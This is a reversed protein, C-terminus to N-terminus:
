IGSRSSPKTSKSHLTRRSGSKATTAKCRFRAFRVRLWRGQGHEYLQGSYDFSQLSESGLLSRFFDDAFGNTAFRSWDLGRVGLKRAITKVDKKPIALSQRGITGTRAFSVGHLRARV